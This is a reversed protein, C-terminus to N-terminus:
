SLYRIQYDGEGPLTINAAVTNREVSLVFRGLREGRISGYWTYSAPSRKIYGTFIGDVVADDFLNFRVIRGPQGSIQSLLDLRVRATRRRIVAPDINTRTPEPPVPPETFLCPYPPSDTTAEEPREEQLSQGQLGTAWILLLALIAPTLLGTLRPFRAPSLAFGIEDM